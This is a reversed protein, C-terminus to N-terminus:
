SSKLALRQPAVRGLELGIRENRTQGWSAASRLTMIVASPSLDTHAILAGHASALLRHTFITEGSLDIYTTQLRALSKEVCSMIASRSLGTGNPGGGGGFFVKTAVVLSARDQKVLWSGIIEESRGAKYAQTYWV